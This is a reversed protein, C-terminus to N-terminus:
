KNLVLTYLEKIAENHLATLNQIALGYNDNQDKYVIEPVVVETDQAIFGIQRRKDDSEKKTFYVGQLDLVKKLAGTIPTINEKARRDSTIVVDTTARITGLVDLTYSSDSSQGLLLHGNDLLQMKQSSGNYWAWASANFVMPITASSNNVANLALANETGLFSVFSFGGNVGTKASVGFKYLPSNSGIMVGTTNEFIFSSSAITTNNSFKALYGGTGSGGITGTIVSSLDSVLKKYLTGTTPDGVVILDTGALSPKTTLQSIKKNAM